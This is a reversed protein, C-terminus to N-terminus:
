LHGGGEDGYAEPDAQSQPLQAKDGSRCTIWPPRRPLTGGDWCPPQNDRVGDELPGRGICHRQVRQEVQPPPCCNELSTKRYDARVQLRYSHPRGGKGLQGNGPGGGPNGGGGVWM